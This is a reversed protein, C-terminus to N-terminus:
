CKLGSHKKGFKAALVVAILYKWLSSFISVWTTSSTGNLIYAMSSMYYRRSIQSRLAWVYNWWDSLPTNWHVWKLYTCESVNFLDSITFFMRATLYVCYSLSHASRGKVLQLITGKGLEIFVLDFVHPVQVLVSIFVVNLTRM